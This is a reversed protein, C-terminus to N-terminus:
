KKKNGFLRKWAEVTDNRQITTSDMAPITSVSSSVGSTSVNSFTPDAPEALTLIRQTIDTANTPDELSEQRTKQPKKDGSINLVGSKVAFQQIMTKRQHQDCLHNAYNSALVQDECVECKIMLITKRKPCNWDQHKKLAEVKIEVGCEPCNTYLPNTHINQTHTVLRSRESFTKECFECEFSNNTQKKEEKPAHAEDMHHKMDADTRKM